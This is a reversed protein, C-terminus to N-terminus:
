QECVVTTSCPNSGYTGSLVEGGCKPQKVYLRKVEEGVAVTRTTEELEGLKNWKGENLAKAVSMVGWKTKSYEKQQPYVNMMGKLWEYSLAFEEEGTKGEMGVIGSGAIVCRGAQSLRWGGLADGVIVKPLKKDTIMGDVAVHLPVVNNEYCTQAVRLRINTEVIAGYVPNFHPGLEPEAQNGRLELMKGWMGALIRKCIHAIMGDNHQRIDWLRMVSSHFPYSVQEPIWWWGEHIRVFGLKYRQIFRIEQLSLYAKWAGTPTYSIDNRGKVLIPHFPATIEVLCEAFGYVADQPPTKDEIWQGNRIDQLLALESAYAGNIDYDYAADWHGLSFAEVWNSKVSQYALEGAAEPIDDVTPVDPWLGAKDFAKIPSTLSKSNIGMAQYTDIISNGIGQSTTALTRADEISLGPQHHTSAYQKANYTTTYRKASQYGYDISLVRGPIYFISHGSKLHARHETLLKHCEVESAFSHALVKAVLYDLDYAVKDQRTETALLWEVWDTDETTTHVGSSLVMTDDTVHVGLM